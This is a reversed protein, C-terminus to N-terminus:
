IHNHRFNATSSRCIRTTLKEKKNRGEQNKLRLYKSGGVQTAEFM